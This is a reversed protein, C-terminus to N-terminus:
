AVTELAHLLELLCKILWSFFHVFDLVCEDRTRFALVGFFLFQQRFRSGLEDVKAQYTLARERGIHSHVFLLFLVNARKTQQHWARQKRALVVDYRDVVVVVGAASYPPDSM